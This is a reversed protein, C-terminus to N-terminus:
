KIKVTVKGAIHYRRMNREKAHREWGDGGTLLVWYQKGRRQWLTFLSHILPPAAGLFLALHVTRLFDLLTLLTILKVPSSPFLKLSSPSSSCILCLHPISPPYLHSSTLSFSFSCFLFSFEQLDFLFFSHASKSLWVGTAKRTKWRKGDWVGGRVSKVTGGDKWGEM